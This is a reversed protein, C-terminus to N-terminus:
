FGFSLAGGDVAFEQGTVYCAANSVLFWVMTAIDNRPHGYRHLPMRGIIKALREPDAVVKTMDTRIWGPAVANVLINDAAWEVALGRTIGVVAAKTSCYPTVESFGLHAAMSSINVVRGATSSRKLYPHCQKAMFFAADVNTRHIASWWDEDVNEARVRRTIGACNVLFDIGEADGISNVAQEISPSDTIDVARDIVRPNLEFDLGETQTARRSFNFVTAGADALLHAIARGIGSSAGTVIGVRGDLSFFQNLVDQKM